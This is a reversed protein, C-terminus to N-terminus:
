QRLVSCICNIGSGNNDILCALLSDAYTLFTIAIVVSFAARHTGGKLSLSWMCPRVTHLCKKADRLSSCDATGVEPVILGRAGERM